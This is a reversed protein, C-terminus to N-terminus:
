RGTALWRMADPDPTLARWLARLRMLRLWGSFAPGFRESAADVWGCAVAGGLAFLAVGLPTPILPALRLFLMRRTAEVVWADQDDDIAPWRPPARPDLAAIAEPLARLALRLARGTKGDALIGALDVAQLREIWRGAFGPPLAPGGPAGTCLLHLLRTVTADPAGTAAILAKETSRQSPHLPRTRLVVDGVELVPGDRWTKWATGCAPDIGARLTDEAQVAVFPFQQCRIPKTEGGFRRHIECLLDDGLFVCRGDEFRLGGDEIPHEVGLAAAAQEIRPVEGPDVEVFM